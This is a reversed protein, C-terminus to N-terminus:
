EVYDKNVSFLQDNNMEKLPRVCNSDNSECIFDEFISKSSCNRTRTRSLNQKTLMSDSNPDIVPQFM